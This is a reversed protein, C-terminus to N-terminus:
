YLALVFTGVINGNIDRINKHVNCLEGQEIREAVDRLIRVIEPAASQITPNEDDCFAANSCNISLKFYPQKM